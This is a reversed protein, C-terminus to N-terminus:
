SRAKKGFVPLPRRLYDIRQSPDAEPAAPAFEQAWTRVRMMHRYEQETIPRDCARLWYDRPDAFDDGVECIMKEDSLLEGDPGVLQEVYIRCPVFPKDRGFKVKFFGAQPSGESFHPIDEGARQAERLSYYGDMAALAARWWTYMPERPTPRRHAKIEQSAVM